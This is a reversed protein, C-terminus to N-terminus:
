LGALYFKRNIRERSLTQLLTREEKSLKLIESQEHHINLIDVRDNTTTFGIVVVGDSESEAFADLSTWMKNTFSFNKYNIPRGKVERLDRYSAFYGKQEKLKQIDNATVGDKGRFFWYPVVATSYPSFQGGDADTGTNIVRRKVLAVVDRVIVEYEEARTNDLEQQLRELKLITEGITSM